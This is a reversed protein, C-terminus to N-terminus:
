AEEEKEKETLIEVIRCVRELDRGNLRGALVLLRQLGEDDLLGRVEGPLLDFLKLFSHDEFFYGLPVNFTRGIRELLKLSPYQHGLELKGVYTQDIRGPVRSAFEKQTLGLRKRIMKLRKGVRVMKGGKM